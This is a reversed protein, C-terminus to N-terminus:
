NPVCVKVDFDDRWGVYYTVGYFGLVFHEFSTRPQAIQLVM